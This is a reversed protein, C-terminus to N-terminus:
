NVRRSIKPSICLVIHQTYADREKGGGGARGGGGCVCLNSSWLGSKLGRSWKSHSRHLNKVEIAKM